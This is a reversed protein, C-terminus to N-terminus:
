GLKATLSNPDLGDEVEAIQKLLELDTEKMIVEETGVLM